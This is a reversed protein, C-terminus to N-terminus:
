VMEDRFKLVSFSPPIWSMLLNSLVRMSFITERWNGEWWSRGDSSSPDVMQAANYKPQFDWFERFIFRWSNPRSNKFCHWGCCNVHWCGLAFSAACNSGIFGEKYWAGRCTLCPTQACFICLAHWFLSEELTTGWVEVLSFCM